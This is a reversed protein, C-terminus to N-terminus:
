RRRDSEWQPYELDQYARDAPGAGSRGAWRDERPLRFNPAVEETDAIESYRPLETDTTVPEPSSIRQVKHAKSKQQQKDRSRYGARQQSGGRTVGTPGNQQVAQKDSDLKKTVFVKKSPPNNKDLKSAHRGVRGSSKYYKRYVKKLGVQRRRLEGKLPRPSTTPPTSTYAVPLKEEQAKPESMPEKVPEAGHYRVQVAGTSGDVRIEKGVVKQGGPKKGSPDMLIKPAEKGEPHHRRQVPYGEYQKERYSYSKYRGAPEQKKKTYAYQRGTAGYQKRSVQKEEAYDSNQRNYKTRKTNTSYDDDEGDDSEFEEDTDGKKGQRSRGYSVTRQQDHDRNSMERSRHVIPTQRDKTEYDSRSSPREQVKQPNRRTDRLRYSGVVTADSSNYDDSDSNEESRDSPSSQSTLRGDHNGSYRVPTPKSYPYVRSGGQSSYKEPYQRASPSYDNEQIEDTDYSKQRRGATGHSSRVRENTYEPQGYGETNDDQGIKRLRPGPNSDMTQDGYRSGKMSETKSMIRPGRQSGQFRDKTQTQEQVNEGYSDKNQATPRQAGRRTSGELKQEYSTARQNTRAARGQPVTRGQPTARGHPTRSQGGRRVLEATDQTKDSFAGRQQSHQSYSRSKQASPNSVTRTRTYYRSKKQSGGFRGAKNARDTSETQKNDKNLHQETKFTYVGGQVFVPHHSHHSTSPNEKPAQKKYAYSNVKPKPKSHGYPKRKSKPEPSQYSYVAARSRHGGQKSSPRPRQKHSPRPRPGSVTDRTNTITVDEDEQSTQETSWPYTGSDETYERSDGGQVAGGYHNYDSAPAQQEDYDSDYSDKAGEGRYPTYESRSPVINDEDEDSDSADKGLNKMYDKAFTSGDHDEYSDGHYDYHNRKPYTKMSTKHSHHFDTREKMPILRDYSHASHRYERPIFGESPQEIYTEQSGHKSIIDVAPYKKRSDMDMPREDHYSDLEQSEHRHDTWPRYEGSSVREGEGSDTETADKM